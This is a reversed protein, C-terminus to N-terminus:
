RSRRGCIRRHYPHWSGREAVRDTWMGGVVDAKRAARAGGRAEMLCSLSTPTRTSSGTGSGCRKTQISACVRFAREKTRAPLAVGLARPGHVGFAEVHRAMDRYTATRQPTSSSWSGSPSDLSLTKVILYYDRRRPTRRPWSPSGPRQHRQGRCLDIREEEGARLDGGGARSDPLRPARRRAAVGHGLANRPPATALLAAVRLWM